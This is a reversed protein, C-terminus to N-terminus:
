QENYEAEENEAEMMQPGTPAMGSFQIPVFADLWDSCGVARQRQADMDM